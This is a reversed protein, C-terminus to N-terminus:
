WIEDTIDEDPEVGRPDYDEDDAWEVGQDDDDKPDALYKARARKLREAAAARQEETMNRAREGKPVLGVARSSFTEWTYDIDLAPDDNKPRYPMFYFLSCGIVECSKKGDVYHGSCDHCKSEIAAKMSPRRVTKKEKPM